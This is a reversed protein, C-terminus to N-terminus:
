STQELGGVLAEDTWVRTLTRDLRTVIEEGITGAADALEQLTAEGDAGAGFLTVTDGVRVGPDVAFVTRSPEVTTIRYRRGHVSVTAGAADSLLGHVGGLPVAAYSGSEHEWRESVVSELSMAPRLGLEAPGVGSGPAIGYLFAGVRVADHRADARAFAAASAAVHQMPADLGLERAVSVADHFREIAATDDADSAEAIHTWVGAVELLGPEALAAAVFSPWHERRVGARHLGTDIKLHVRAVHGAVNAARLVHELARESTVGLEIGEAFARPLGDPDDLVWAFVRANPALERVRHATALDLAGFFDVGAAVFAAVTPALGHGYADDKVVAILAAPAVRERMLTVNAGLASRSVLARNVANFPAIGDSHGDGHNTRLSALVSLPHEGVTAAWDALSLAGSAPAGFVTVHEGPLAPVDGIDVVCADMAVRGVIPCLVGRVSVRARNGAKRPLGHGYGIDVLALTTDEAAVYTHGYSVGSGAPVRKCQLIEAQLTMGGINAAALFDTMAGADGGAAARAHKEVGPAFEILRAPRRM